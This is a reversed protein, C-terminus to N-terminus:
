AGVTRLDGVIKLDTRGYLIEAFEALFDPDLMLDLSEELSFFWQEPSLRPNPPRWENARKIADHIEARVNEAWSQIEHKQLAAPPRPNTHSATRSLRRVVEESQQANGSPELVPVPFNSLMAYRPVLRHGSSFADAHDWVPPVVGALKWRELFRRGEAKKGRSFGRGVLRADGYLLESFESRFGKELLLEASRELHSVVDPSFWLVRHDKERKELTPEISRDEELIPQFTAEWDLIEEETIPGDARPTPAAPPGSQFSSSSLGEDLGEERHGGPATSNRPQERPGEKGSRRKM